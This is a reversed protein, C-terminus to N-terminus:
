RPQVGVPGSGATTRFKSLKVPHVYLEDDAYSAFLASLDYGTPVMRGDIAPRGWLETGHWRTQAETVVRDCALAVATPTAVEAWVHLAAFLGCLRCFERLAPRPVVVFDSYGCVLPFEQGPRHHRAAYLLHQVRPVGKHARVATRVLKRRSIPGCRVGHRAMLMRAGALDPLEAVANVFQNGLMARLSPLTYQWDVSQDSLPHLVKAYGADPSLGLADALNHQNLRPHLLLDDGAFAFFDAGDGAPGALERYAQAFFGHFQASSGHVAIVDARPGDYFPMLYRPQDFRGAYVADLKPLNADYRHNFIVVLQVTGM